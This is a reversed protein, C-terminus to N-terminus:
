VLKRQFEPFSQLLVQVVVRHDALAADQVEAMGVRLAVGVGPTAIRHPQVADVGFQEVLVANASERGYTKDWLQGWETLQDHDLDGAAVDTSASSWGCRQRAIDAGRAIKATLATHAAPTNPTATHCARSRINGRLLSTLM